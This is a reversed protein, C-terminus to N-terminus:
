VWVLVTHWPFSCSHPWTTPLLMLLLLLLLFLVFLLQVLFLLLCCWGCRCWDWIITHTGHTQFRDVSWTRGLYHLHVAGVAIVSVTELRPKLLTDKGTRRAPLRSDFIICLCVSLLVNVKFKILIKNRFFYYPLM